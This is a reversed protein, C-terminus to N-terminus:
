QSHLQRSRNIGAPDFAAVAIGNIAGAAVPLRADAAVDTVGTAGDLNQTTATEQHCEKTKSM